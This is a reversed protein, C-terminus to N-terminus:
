KKRAALANVVEMILQLSGSIKELFLRNRDHKLETTEPTDDSQAIRSFTNAAKRWCIGQRSSSSSATSWNARAAGSIREIIEVGRTEHEQMTNFVTSLDSFYETTKEKHRIVKKASALM